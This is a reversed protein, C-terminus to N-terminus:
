LVAGFGFTIKISRVYYDEFNNRVRDEEGIPIGTWKVVMKTEGSGQKLQIDLQAYHGDKWDLLRWLQTIRENPVLKTFKGSISGGFLSFDSGESPPFPELNPAARSWAAIRAQDLLTIYLQEALTNFEPELHLTSTNYKPVSSKTDVQPKSVSASTSSSGSGAGSGAGSGSGSGSGSSLSETKGTAKGANTLTQNAKTFKLNVQDQSLQIDSSHETILDTGFQALKERLKPLLGWKILYRIREHEPTENYISVDFQIDDADSDYALEPVTISGSVENDEATFGAIAFVLKLDFLSIVKGKRQSVDCDGEVSSVASIAINGEDTSVSLGDTKSAFYGRSWGLCNKDVWHWNNPNNVVM